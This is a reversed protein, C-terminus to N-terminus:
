PSKIQRPWSVSLTPSKWNLSIKQFVKWSDNEQWENKDPSLSMFLVSIFLNLSLKNQFYESLQSLIIITETLISIPLKLNFITLITALRIPHDGLIVKLTLLTVFNLINFSSPVQHYLTPITVQVIIFHDLQIYLRVNLLAVYFLGLEKPM